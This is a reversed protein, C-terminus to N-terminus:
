PNEAFVSITVAETSANISAIELIPYCFTLKFIQEPKTGMFEFIQKQDPEPLINSTNIGLM